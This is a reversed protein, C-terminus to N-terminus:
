KLNTRPFVMKFTFTDSKYWDPLPTIPKSVLYPMIGSKKLKKKDGRSAIEVNTIKGNKSTTIIVEVAKSLYPADKVLMQTVENKWPQINPGTWVNGNKSPKAIQFVVDCDKFIDSDVSTEESNAPGACCACCSSVLLLIWRYFRLM